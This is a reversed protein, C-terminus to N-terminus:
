TGAMGGGLRGASVCSEHLHGVQQASCQGTRGQQSGARGGGEGARGLSGAGVGGVQMLLQFGLEELERNKAIAVM